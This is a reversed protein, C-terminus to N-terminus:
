VITWVSTLLGNRVVSKTNTETGLVVEYTRYDTVDPLFSLAISADNCAQVSFIIYNHQLVTVVMTDYTYLPPPM